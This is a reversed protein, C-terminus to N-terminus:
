AGFSLGLLMTPSVMYLQEEMDRIVYLILGDDDEDAEEFPRGKAYLASVGLSADISMKFDGSNLLMIQMAIQPQILFGILIESEFNHDKGEHRAFAIGVDFGFGLWVRQGLRSGARLSAGLANVLMELSQSDHYDGDDDYHFQYMFDDLEDFDDPEDDGSPLEASAEGALLQYFGGLHVSEGLVGYGALRLGGWAEGELDGNSDTDNFDVEWGDYDIGDLKTFWGGWGHFAIPASLQAYGEGYWEITKPPPPPPPAAAPTPAVYAPPDPAPPAPPPPPAPEPIVGPPPEVCTGDECVRDGKCDTDKHCQAALGTSSLALLLAAVAAFVRKLM